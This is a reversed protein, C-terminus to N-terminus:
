KKNETHHCEPHLLTLVASQTIRLRMKPCFLVFHCLKQYDMELDKPLFVQLVTSICYKILKQHAIFHNLM